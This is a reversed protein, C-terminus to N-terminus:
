TQLRELADVDVESILRAETEAHIRVADVGQLSKLFVDDLVPKKKGRDNVESGRLPRVGKLGVFHRTSNGTM